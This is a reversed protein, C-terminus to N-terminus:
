DAFLEQQAASAAKETLLKGTFARQQIARFLEEHKEASRTVKIALSQLIEVFKLYQQQLEIPPLLVPFERLQTMNITAIGTTQKAERLFYRKGRESGILGSLFEPFLYRHNTRVRFIHNQHLCNPIEGRWIAGRGLKDPDGGETMLVDGPQLRYREIDTALVEIEKVERLDIFGDQVNAVRLYPMLVTAQGNFKRGKMAGSTIEAVEGLQATAWEKPNRMPDGFMELFVAKLLTDLKAISQRRLERMADAKDLIAAIRRQEPLPLLPIELALLHEKRVSAQNVWQTCM